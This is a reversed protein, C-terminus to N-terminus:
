GYGGEKKKALMGEIISDVRLKGIEALDLRLKLQASLEIFFAQVLQEAGSFMWPNFELITIGSDKLRGCALNVFSTKGSGWPGLVGVVVGETSDLALVQEAFSQAPKIRGLADDEPKTIPNDASIISALHKGIQPAREEPAGDNPSNAYKRPFLSRIWSM